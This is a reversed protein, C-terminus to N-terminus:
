HTYSCLLLLIYNLSIYKNYIIFINKTKAKTVEIISNKHYNTLLIDNFLQLRPDIGPLPKSLIDGSWDLHHPLECFM